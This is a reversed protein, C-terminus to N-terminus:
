GHRPAQERGQQQKGGARGSLGGDLVQGHTADDEHFNIAHSRAANPEFEVAASIQFGAAEFGLSLGGCGSFLDLVRPKAGRRIRAIKKRIDDSM